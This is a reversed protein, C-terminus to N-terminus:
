RAIVSKTQIKWQEPIDTPEISAGVVIETGIMAIYATASPITAAYVFVGFTTIADHLVMGSYALQTVDNLTSIVIDDMIIDQVEIDMGSGPLGRTPKTVSNLWWTRIIQQCLQASAQKRFYGGGGPALYILGPFQYPGDVEEILASALDVATPTKTKKIRRAKYQSLGKLDEVFNAGTAPTYTPDVIQNEDFVVVQMERDFNQSPVTAWSGAHNKKTTRIEYGNGLDTLESQVILLGTEISLTGSTQLTYVVDLVAGGLEETTEKDTFGVPPSLTGFSVSKTRKNFVDIQQEEHSLEGTALTPNSNATGTSTIESIVTPITARFKPPILNEISKSYVPGPFVAKAAVTQIATGDGLPQYKTDTTATPAIPSVSDLQWTRIIVVVEKHEDTDYSTLSMPLEALDRARVTVRKTQADIQREERMLEGAGLTPLAAQGAVTHSEETTALLAGFDPPTIDPREVRYDYLGLLNPITSVVQEIRGDGWADQDAEIILETLSPLTDGEERVTHTRTGVQGDKTRFYEVMTSGIPDGIFVDTKKREDTLDQQVSSVVRVGDATSDGLATPDIDTPDKQVLTTLGLKARWKLPIVDVLGKFKSTLLPGPNKLLAM